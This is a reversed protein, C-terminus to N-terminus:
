GSKPSNIRLAGYMERQGIIVEVRNDHYEYGVQHPLWVRDKIKPHQLVKLLEDRDFDTSM